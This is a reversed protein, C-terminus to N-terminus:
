TGLSQYQLKLNPAKGEKRSGINKKESNPSFDMDKETELEYELCKNQDKEDKKGGKRLYEVNCGIGMILLIIVAVLFLNRIIFFTGNFDEDSLKNKRSNLINKTFIKKQM